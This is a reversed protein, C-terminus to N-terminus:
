RFIQKANDCFLKKKFEFKYNLVLLYKIFRYTPIGPISLVKWITKQPM